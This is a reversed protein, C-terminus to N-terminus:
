PPARNFTSGVMHMSEVSYQEVACTSGEGTMSADCRIYVVKYVERRAYVVIPFPCVLAIFQLQPNLQPWVMVM